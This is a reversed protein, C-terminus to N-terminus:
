RPYSGGPPGYGGGPPPGYGGGGPPPGGYGGPPPPGYGPHPYQAGAPSFPPLLPTAQGTIRLFVIAAAVATLPATVLGGVCCVMTGAMNVTAAVMSLVFLPLRQGETAKWSARMSDIVGVNSDVLFYSALWLGYHVILGPVLFCLCGLTVALAHLVTLGLMPFFLPGGAFLDNFTPVNGRAATLQIRTLGVDFFAQVVVQVVFSAVNTGLGTTLSPAGKLDATLGVVLAALSPAAVIIGAVLPAFVLVAWHVKLVNWAQAFVEGIEWPQPNGMAAGPPAPPPPAQPAAYPNYNMPLSDEAPDRERKAALTGRIWASAAGSPTLFFVLIIRVRKAGEGM